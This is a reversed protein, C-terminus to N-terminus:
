PPIVALKAPGDIASIVKASGEKTPKAPFAITAFWVRSVSGSFKWLEWLSKSVPIHSPTYWLFSILSFIEFIRLINSLFSEPTFESFELSVESILIWVLSADYFLNNILM